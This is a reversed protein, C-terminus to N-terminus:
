EASLGVVPLLSYKKGYELMQKMFNDPYEIEVNEITHDHFIPVLLPNLFGSFPAIKLKKWRLLVEEHIEYDVRVGYNEVLARM